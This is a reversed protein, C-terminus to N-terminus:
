KHFLDRINSVAADLVAKDKITLESDCCFTISLYFLADKRTAILYSESRYANLAEYVPRITANEPIESALIHLMGDRAITQLYGTCYQDARRDQWLTSFTEGDEETKYVENVTRLTVDCGPGPIGGGNTSRVIMVRSICSDLVLIKNLIQYLTTIDELGSQHRKKLILQKRESLWATGSKWALAGVGGAGLVATALEIYYDPM